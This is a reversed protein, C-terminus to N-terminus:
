PLRVGRPACVKKADALVAGSTGGSGRDQEEESAFGALRAVKVKTWQEAGRRKRESRRKIEIDGAPGDGGRAKAGVVESCSCPGDPHVHM